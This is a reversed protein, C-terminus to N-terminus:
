SWAEKMINVANSKHAPYATVKAKLQICDGSGLALKGRYSEQKDFRIYFNCDDDMGDEMEKTVSEKEKKDFNELIFDFIKNIDGQKKFEIRLVIVRNGFTGQLVEKKVTYSTYPDRFGHSKTKIELGKNNRIDEPLLNSMAERVKEEDETEHCFAELQLSRFIM